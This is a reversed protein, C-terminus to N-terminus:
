FVTNRFLEHYVPVGIRVPLVTVGTCRWLPVGTCRHEPLVPIFVGQVAKFLGQAAKFLSSCAQVLKTIDLILSCNNKSNRGGGEWCIGVSIRHMFRKRNQSM